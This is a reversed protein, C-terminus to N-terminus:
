PARGGSMVAVVEVPELAAHCILESNITWHATAGPGQEEACIDLAARDIRQEIADLRLALETHSATARAEALPSPEGADLATGALIAASLALALAATTLPTPPRRTM